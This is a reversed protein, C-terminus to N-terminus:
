FVKRIKKNMWLYHKDNIIKPNIWFFHSDNLEMM